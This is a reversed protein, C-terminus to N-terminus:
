PCKQFPVMANIAATSPVLHPVLRCKGRLLVCFAPVARECSLGRLGKHNSAKRVQRLLAEAPRRLGQRPPGRRSGNRARHRPHRRLTLEKARRPWSLSAPPPATNPKSACTLNKKTSATVIAEGLLEAFKAAHEAEEFAHRKGTCASRPIAKAIRRRAGHGSVHRGRLVRRHLQRASGRPDGRSRDTPWASWMSLRGPAARRRGAEVFKSAPAKCIPCFKRLRKAKTFM